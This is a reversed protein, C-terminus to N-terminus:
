PAFELRSAGVLAGHELLAGEGLAAGDVRLRRLSGRQGSAEIRVTKGGGLRLEALPFMPDGPVYLDSGAIPYFGLASFVYWSSLTGGDDNGVLGDPGDGYLRERVRDVWYALRDPRGAAHFMYVNHLPPENGHWYYRAPLGPRILREGAADSGGFYRELAEFMAEQGGLAEALAAADYFPYFRWHWANGETYFGSRDYFTEPRWGQAWTGDANRPQMFGSEPHLLKRWGASRARWTAEDQTKGLAGALNALAWDHWGYELTLSTAEDERDAPVYGLERYDEMAHRGKFRAGEPAMGEATVRLAELAAEYDVGEVGKLKGEAFLVDAPTGIMGGTYSLAAPWRPITGGDRGMAMLTLLTDRALMPELLVYLPHTTRFTDWLSLETYYTFGKAEHVEGDLGRYRGSSESFQSPMRYANYLATYFIEQQKATGGAVAVRGLRELWLAKTRARVGDFGGRAQEERNRLAEDGDIMSLGVTLEIPQGAAGEFSWVAGTRVGYARQGERLGDTDWVHTTQPARSVVADVYLTFAQARGVYGGRYRVWGTLRGDQEIELNADEVGRDTVSSTLDLAIHATQEGTFTYRHLGVQPSATLEVEVGQEPLLARYYGPAGREEARNRATRWTGDALGDLTRTPMVRVNGYDAVGTGILHLHSYGRVEPDADHYGSFHQNEARINGRTTDPGLKVMGLPAQAAPTLAAYGYGLGGSGIWVDVLEYAQEAEVLKTPDLEVPMDPSLNESMDQALDPASDPTLDESMDAFALDPAADSEPPAPEPNNCAVCLMSTICFWCGRNLM